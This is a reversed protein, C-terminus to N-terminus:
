SRYYGRLAVEGGGVGYGYDPDNIILPMDVSGPQSAQQRYASVQMTLNNYVEKAADRYMRAIDVPNTFVIRSDGDSLSIVGPNLGQLVRNLQTQYYNFQYLLSYIGQETEGLPPSIVGSVATYCTALQNNLQGVYPQSVLKSQIYSPPQGSPAGLDLFINNALDTIYAPCSM